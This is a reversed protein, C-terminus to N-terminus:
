TELNIRESSNLSFDLSDRIAEANLPGYVHPFLESGGVTNERVLDPVLKGPDIVLLMLDDIGQYYRQVVGALQQKDCCHIFGETDLSTCRYSGTQQSAALDVKTAIHFILGQHQM